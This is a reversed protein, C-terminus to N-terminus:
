LILYDFLTKNENVISFKVEKKKMREILSSFDSKNKLEIGVLAPGSEKINKKAYEFLTIDDNPGLVEAVFEKLAGPRQPFDILFYYKLEEFLLSREKIEQMRGIDNNSGTVICVVNKNEIKENYEQLAAISLAGAPEVVIAEENYLKIITSCIQGEPIAIVEHFNNKCIEFNLTGVQQVAAGDVFKDINNLKVIKNQELSTKMSPAGAPEVGIIKTKPSIKKFYSIVGASLGGGGIPLFLYDIEENIDELIELAVTGQGEIVKKDDFPHVYTANQSSCFNVAEKNSDDFTDGSLIIDINNKGFLKVQNVKQKPTTTPMFITGQINLKYCSYAVGQAHNGASACVIGGAKEEDSLNVIKNYAGRLKYSRVIQLDERKFYISAQHQESYNINFETPTRKAVGKLLSAAIIIDETKIINSM